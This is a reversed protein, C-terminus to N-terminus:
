GRGCGEGAAAEVGPASNVLALMQEPLVPKVLHAHFGADRSRLRDADHGYGTLAVLICPHEDGLQERVRAALEYGDMVPLGIDLLAVEPSFEQLGALASVPDHFVRVEHGSASLLLGLTEAGDVNDDVVLVRRRAPAPAIPPAEPEEVFAATEPSRVPLRVIFESGCGPGDSRAEVQGGHMEVLSKVLALGIGLGGEARDVGREGQYFLDFLRPLMEASIGRGNDRVSIAIDEGDGWAALRVDGGPETYRAANTLLNAVVQGLRVPDGQWQLGPQAEIRLRHSRQELLLSAMEVAKALVDGVQVWEKKLQIKGRTIRSVDLLDDVLRVLHDVQRQIVAQERQTANDRRMRMLQLATVIPSLPNRLEHGLMALFEDKARGADRLEALLREREVYARELSQRVSVQETIDVAVAIISQLRGDADKLPELSLKCFRDAGAGTLAAPLRFEEAVFPEGSRQVRQLAQALESGEFQPLAHVLRLGSLEAGGGLLQCFRENALQFHLGDAALLAAAVPAHLLVNDRQRIATEKARRETADRTFCRTYVLKGREFHANSHILVHRISGDKCRLRAPQDYLTEGRALKALIEELVPRDVHFEAIHRGVYEDYEYGLLQLEAKNAWLIVGDGGVRHLGEAANEIFDILERERGRLTLEAQQRREVEARLALAKQQLEALLRHPDQQADNAPLRAISCVHDHAQCVHQFARGFEAGAFVRWPYGCFLSFRHRRALRNWLDELELAADHHGEECLLAVMEGFAHVLRGGECARAIVQGVTAEFRREDPWGEVMFQALTQAADLVVLEGSFWKPRGAADGLGGLRRRLGAAHEPTAVFVAVGGARLATDLFEAVEDLLFDEQEYFRVFHGPSAQVDHRSASRSDLM